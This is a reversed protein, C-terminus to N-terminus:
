RGGVRKDVLPIFWAQRLDRYVSDTNVARPCTRVRGTFVTLTHRAESGLWLADGCKPRHENGDRQRYSASNAQYRKTTKSHGSVETCFYFVFQM